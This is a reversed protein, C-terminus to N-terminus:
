KLKRRIFAPVELEDEDDDETDQSMTRNDEPAPQQNFSREERRIMQSQPIDSPRGTPMIPM